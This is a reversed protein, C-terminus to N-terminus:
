YDMQKQVMALDGIITLTVQKTTIHKSKPTGAKVSAVRVHPCTCLATNDHMEYM